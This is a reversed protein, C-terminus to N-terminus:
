SREKGKAFLALYRDKEEGPLRYRLAGASPESQYIMAVGGPKAFPVTLRRAEELPALARALVADFPEPTQPTGQAGGSGLPQWAGADPIARGHRVEIGRLGLRATTWNLFGVKRYVSELLTVRTKPLAIKLCIGVFGGGCGVDLLREAALQGLRAAPALGDLLHRRFLEEPTKAATLNTRKNHELVDAGYAEIREWAEEELSVGWEKLANRGEERLRKSIATM